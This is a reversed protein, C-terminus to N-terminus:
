SWTAVMSPWMECTYNNIWCITIELGSLYWASNSVSSASLSFKQEWSNGKLLPVWSNFLSILLYYYTIIFAIFLMFWMSHYLNSFPPYFLYPLYPHGRQSPSFKLGLHHFPAVWWFFQSFVCHVSISSESPLLHLTNSSYFVSVQIVVTLDDFDPFLCQCLVVM